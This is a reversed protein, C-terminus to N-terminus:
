KMLLEIAKNLEDLSATDGTEVADVVCHELHDKLIIECTKGLASRVAALQALVEACDRGEAVM